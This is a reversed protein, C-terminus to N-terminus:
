YLPPLIPCRPPRAPPMPTCRRGLLQESAFRIVAPTFRRTIAASVPMLCVVHRLPTVFMAAAARLMYHRM